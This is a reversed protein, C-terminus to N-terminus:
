ESQPDMDTNSLSSYIKEHHIEVIFTTKVDVVDVCPYLRRGNVAGSKTVGLWKLRFHLCLYENYFDTLNDVLQRYNVCKKKGNIMKEYSYRAFAVDPDKLPIFKTSELMIDVIEDTKLEIELEIIHWERQKRALQNVVKLSEYEEKLDTLIKVRGVKTLKREITIDKVNM